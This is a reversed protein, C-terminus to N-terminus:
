TGKHNKLKNEKTKICCDTLNNIYKYPVNDTQWVGNASLYFKFGDMVMKKADIVLVVANGHRAGVKAATEKDKSLHVFNRSKKIIGYQKIGDLYKETTGHYLIDPPAREPMQLDVEISHGQNARIKTKDDNFAFRQKGDNEVIDCLTGFDIQRGSKNVGIILEDVNAWGHKDLAVGGASPKHRLIYAIFRSLSQMKM